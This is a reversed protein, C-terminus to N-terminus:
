SNHLGRRQWPGDDCDSSAYDTSVILYGNINRNEEVSSNSNQPPKERGTTKESVDKPTIEEYKTSNDDSVEEEETFYTDEEEEEDSEKWTTDEESNNSYEVNALQQWWPLSALCSNSGVHCFFIALIVSIFKRQM